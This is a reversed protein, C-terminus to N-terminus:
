RRTKRTRRPVLSQQEWNIWIGSPYWEDSSDPDPENFEDSENTCQRSRHREGPLEATVGGLVSSSSLLVRSPGEGPDGDDERLNAVSWTGLSGGPCFSEGITLQRYMKGDTKERAMKEGRRKM